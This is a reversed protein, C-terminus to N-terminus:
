FRMADYIYMPTGTVTDVVWRVGNRVVTPLTKNEALQVRVMMDQLERDKRELQELANDKGQKEIAKENTLVVVRGKFFDREQLALNKDNTEQRLSNQLSIEKKELDLITKKDADMERLVKDPFEEIANKLALNPKFDEIRSEARCTPCTTKRSLWDVISDKDFTNGCGHMVPNKMIDGTKIEDIFCDPLNNEYKKILQTSNSVNLEM